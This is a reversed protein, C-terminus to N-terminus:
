DDWEDDCDYGSDIDEEDRYSNRRMMELDEDFEATDRHYKESNYYNDEASNGGSMVKIIVVLMLIMIFAM